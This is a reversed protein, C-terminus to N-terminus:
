REMAKKTSCAYHVMSKSNSIISGVFQFLGNKHSAFISLKINNFLNQISLIDISRSM